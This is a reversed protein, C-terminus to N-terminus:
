AEKPVWSWNIKRRALENILKNKIKPKISNNNLEKFLEEKSMCKVYYHQTVVQGTQRDRVTASPKFKIPM